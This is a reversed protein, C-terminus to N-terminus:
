VSHGPSVPQERQHENILINNVYTSTNVCVSIVSTANSINKYVYVSVFLYHEMVHYHLHSSYLKYDFESEWIISCPALACSGLVM